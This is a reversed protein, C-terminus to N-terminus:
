RNELDLVNSGFRQDRGAPWHLPAELHGTQANVEKKRIGDIICWNPVKTLNKCLVCLIRQQISTLSFM